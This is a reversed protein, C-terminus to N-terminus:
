RRHERRGPHYVQAIENLASSRSLHLRKYAFVRVEVNETCEQLQLWPASM